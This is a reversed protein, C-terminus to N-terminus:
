KGTKGGRRARGKGQAKGTSRGQKSSRSSLELAITEGVAPRAICVAVTKMKADYRWAGKAPGRAGSDRRLAREGMRVAKPATPVGHFRLRYTAPLQDAAGDRAEVMLGRGTDSETTRYREWGFAGSEFAFSLGDDCYLEGGGAGPFVELRVETLPKEGAFQRTERMPIVAGTRAFMPISALTVPVAQEVAKMRGTRVGCIEEPEIRGEFRTAPTQGTPDFRWWVGEPLWIKRKTAGPDLVPAVYLNPGFLFEHATKHVGPHSPFDFLVPRMLPAGDISARRMEAYIYPLLQYRLEIAARCLTEAPKGFSWPDQEPGGCTHTRFLPYFVGLQIWRVFLEMGPANFFGGVDAGVLTQGSLGMNLLMPVSMRLHDWSSKNDGTWTAAYRHVGAFGARTLVFPREDPRLRRVGEFSARAMQMGYVNHIARHDTPQGDNDHRMTLPTLGDPQSFDAPENMDNWFGAVGTEILGKYLDGWWRRTAPRTFDPYASEAPWVKGIYPKGDAGKCFHGGALGSDYVAYGPDKKIGPDLIVVVRMGAKRLDAMLAAPKPFTKENWTFCRYGRMYDIDIYIADCPIKRKRFQKTIDRVRQASEYSWRCQQYGLAWQPPLPTPGVLRAYRRLVDAPTPGPLYYYNLEGGDAGFAWSSRSMRGLDFWSRYTNDFFLGYASGSNLVLTVPHSQYLPDSYPEHDSADTNWNHLSGGRKDFSLAKEGFGFFHDDPDLQKGCVVAEGDWAMGCGDDACTVRGDPTVFSIRCPDREIRVRLAATNMEIVAANQTLKWDPRPTNDPVVAWSHDRGFYGTPALRVRVIDAREFTIFVRTEGCELMLGTKERHFGTVPGLSQRGSPLSEGPQQVATMDQM